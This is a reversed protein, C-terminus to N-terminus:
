KKVKKMYAQYDPDNIISSIEITKLNSLKREKQPNEVRYEESPFQQQDYRNKVDNKRNNEEAYILMDTEPVNRSVLNVLSNRQSVAGNGEDFYYEEEMFTSLYPDYETNMDPDRNQYREDNENDGHLPSQTEFGFNTEENMFASSNKQIVRRSNTELVEANKVNEIVSKQERSKSPKESFMVPKNTIVSFPLKASKLTSNIDSPSLYSFSAAESFNVFSDVNSKGKRGESKIETTKAAAPPPNKLFINNKMTGLTDETTRNQEMETLHQMRQIEEQKRIKKSSKYQVVKFIVFLLIVGFMSSLVIAIIKENNGQKGTSPTVVTSRPNTITAGSTATPVPITPVALFSNGPVVPPFTRGNTYKFYGGVGITGMDTRGLTGVARGPRPPVVIFQPETIDLLGLIMTQILVKSAKNM